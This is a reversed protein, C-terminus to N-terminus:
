AGVSTPSTGAARCGRARPQAVSLIKLGASDHMPDYM